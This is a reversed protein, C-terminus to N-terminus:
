SGTEDGAEGYEASRNMEAYKNKQSATYEKLLADYRAREASLATEYMSNLEAIKKWVDAEDVGGFFTKRFRVQKLWKRIREQEHNLLKPNGSDPRGQMRKEIADGKQSTQVKKSRM